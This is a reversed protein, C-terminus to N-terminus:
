KESGRLIQKAAKTMSLHNKDAVQRVHGIVKIYTAYDQDARRLVRSLANEFTEESKRSRVTETLADLEVQNL